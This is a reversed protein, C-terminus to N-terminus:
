IGGVFRGPNLTGHPDFQEKIKKMLTLEPGDFGWVDIRQKLEVPCVEVVGHGGAKHALSRIEGVVNQLADISGNDSWWCSHTVGNTVNSQLAHDLEAKEGISEIGEIIRGTQTPLSTTKVIMTAPRSEERGLDRIATWLDTSEAVDSISQVEISWERSLAGIEKEQRGVAAPTGGLEVALVYPSRAEALAALKPSAARADLVQLALPQFGRKPTELALAVAVEASPCPLLLTRYEKPLPAVKFAAQVIIGLTGLSGTYLKNMDYGTVNKVVKGGGKTVEGNAHVVKIGILRDRATGFFARRPGSANGALIGGITAEAARPPDLPLFQGREALDNQLVDLLTGGEVVVTLDAPEHEVIRNLRSAGVVVDVGTVLNGLGMHTGGGWPVVTKGESEAAALLTSMEEVTNPFAVVEPACGDVSYDSLGSSQTIKRAGPLGAVARDLGKARPM